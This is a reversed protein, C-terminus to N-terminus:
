SEDVLLGRARCPLQLATPLASGDTPAGMYNDKYSAGVGAWEWACRPARLCQGPVVRSRHQHTQWRFQGPRPYHDSWDFVTHEHRRPGCVGMTALRALEAIREPGYNQALEKIEATVKNPTGKKRGSGPRRGGTNPRAGGWPGRTKIIKPGAKEDLEESM